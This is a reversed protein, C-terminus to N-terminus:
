AKLKPQKGLQLFYATAVLLMVVGAIMFVGRGGISAWLYGAVISGIAGGGGYAVSSYLAQGHVEYKGRFFKHIHQMSVAHFLGFTIAHSAQAILVISAIDPYLAITLWRIGALFLAFVFLNLMKFNNLLRHVFVFLVVECVVGAAWFLGIETKSYGTQEFYISLFSYYPAYCLQMAVCALFFWIVKPQRLIGTIRLNLSSEEVVHPTPKVILTSVWIGVLAIIMAPVVIHAGYRDTLVGMLLVTIIFGISGWLRISGYKDRQDNLSRLTEAEVQPLAANWFFSYLTMILAIKIFSDAWFVGAFCLLSLFSAYRVISFAVKTKGSLYAWIYPAAIKTLMFISMLEGIQAPSFQISNLYLPWYPAMIGLTAFYFFYFSCIPLRSLSLRIM